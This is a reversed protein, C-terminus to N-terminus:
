CIAIGTAAQTQPSSWDLAPLTQTQQPYYNPTVKKFCLELHHKIIRWQDENPTGGHIECFGQLWFVFQEPKLLEDKIVSIM